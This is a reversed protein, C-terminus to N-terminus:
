DEDEMLAKVVSVTEACDEDEYPKLGYCLMFHGSHGFNREIWILEDPSFHYDALHPIPDEGPERDYENVESGENTSCVASEDDAEMLARVISRGEARDEEKYISLEYARLCHFEDGWHRKLWAKEGATYPPITSSSPSAKPKEDPKQAAFDQPAM